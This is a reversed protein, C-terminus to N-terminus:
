RVEAYSGARSECLSRIDGRGEAASADRRQVKPLTGDVERRWAIPIHVEAQPHSQNMCTGLTRNEAITM